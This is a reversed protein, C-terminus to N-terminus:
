AIKRANQLSIGIAAVVAEVLRQPAGTGDGGRKAQQMGPALKESEGADCGIPSTPLVCGRDQRDRQFCHLANISQELDLARNITKGGGFPELNAFFSARGEYGVHLDPQSM